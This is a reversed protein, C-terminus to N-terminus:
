LHAAPSNSSLPDPSSSPGMAPATPESSRTPPWRVGHRGGTVGWAALALGGFFALGMGLMWMTSGMAEGTIISGGLGVLVAFLM